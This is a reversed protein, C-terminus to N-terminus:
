FIDESVNNQDFPLINQPPMPPVPLPPKPPPAIGNDDSPLNTPYIM